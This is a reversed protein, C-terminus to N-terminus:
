IFLTNFTFMASIANVFYKRYPREIKSKAAVFLLLYKSVISDIAEDDVHFEM